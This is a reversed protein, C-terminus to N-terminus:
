SAVGLQLCLSLRRPSGGEPFPYHADWGLGSAPRAGVWELSSLFACILGALGLMRSAPSPRRLAETRGESEM